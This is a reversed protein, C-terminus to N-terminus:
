VEICWAMGCLIRGYQMNHLWCYLHPDGSQPSNLRKMDALSIDAESFAAAPYVVQGFFIRFFIQQLNSPFYELIMEHYGKILLRHLTLGNVQDSTQHLLLLPTLVVM